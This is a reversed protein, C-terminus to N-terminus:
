GEQIQKYAALKILIPIRASEIKLMAGNLDEDHGSFYSEEKGGRMQELIIRANELYNCIHELQEKHKENYNKM